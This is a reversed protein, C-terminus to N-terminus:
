SLREILKEAREIRDAYIKAYVKTGENWFVPIIDILSALLEPASAILEANAEAEKGDYVIAIDRSGNDEAQYVAYQKAYDPTATAKHTWPGATHKM